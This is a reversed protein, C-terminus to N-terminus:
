DSRRRVRTVVSALAEAVSRGVAASDLVPEYADLPPRQDLAHRIGRALGAADGPPVLVHEHGHRVLTPIGGVATAVFPLGCALGELLVNPIGESRSSLVQLDAARFYRPLESHAVPGAWVIDADVGLSSALERLAAEDAGGGVLVLLPKAVRLAPTAIASLLIDLAKVPVWRGVSLLIPRDAPLGLEARAVQSPGPTFVRHDVGRRLLTIRAPDIGAVQVADRIASGVALVLDAGALTSLIRQRRAGTQGLVLVDSGGVILAFPVGLRRAWAQAVTGDPDAWYALVLDPRPQRQLTAGTSLALQGALRMPALRPIYWFTPTVIPYTTALPLEAHWREPWPVPIVARVDVLPALSELLVRNFTGKQPAWPHPHVTSFFAIRM